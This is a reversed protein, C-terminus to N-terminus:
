SGNQVGKLVTNILNTNITSIEERVGRLEAGLDSRMQNLDTRWGGLDKYHDKRPLYDRQIGAIQAAQEAFRVETSASLDAIAKQLEKSRAADGEGNKDIKKSLWVILGAIVLLVPATGYQLLSSLLAWM